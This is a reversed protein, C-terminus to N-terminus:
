KISSLNKKLDVTPKNLIKKFNFTLYKPLYKLWSDSMSKFGLSHFDESKKTFAKKM